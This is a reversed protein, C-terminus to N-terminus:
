VLFIKGYLHLFLSVDIDEFKFCVIPVDAKRLIERYANRTVKQPSTRFPGLKVLWDRYM